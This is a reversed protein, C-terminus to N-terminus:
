AGPSDERNPGYVHSPVGQAMPIMMMMLQSRHHILHHLLPFRLVEGVRITQNLFPFQVDLDEPRITRGSM